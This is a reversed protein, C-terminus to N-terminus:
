IIKKRKSIEKISYMMEQLWLEEQNTLKVDEVEFFDKLGNKSLELIRENEELHINSGCKILMYSKFGDDLMEERGNIM